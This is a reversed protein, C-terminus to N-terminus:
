VPKTVTRGLQKHGKWIIYAFGLYTFICVLSQIIWLHSNEGGNRTIFEVLLHVFFGGAGYFLTISVMLFSLNSILSTEHQYFYYFYRFCLIIYSLPGLVSILKPVSHSPQYVLQLAWFTLTIGIGWYLIGTQRNSERYMMTTLTLLAFVVFFEGLYRGWIFYFTLYVVSVNVFLSAMLFYLAYRIKRNNTLKLGVALLIGIAPSFNQIHVFIESLSM